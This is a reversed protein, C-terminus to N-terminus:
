PYNRRISLAEITRRCVTRAMDRRFGGDRSYRSRITESAGLEAEAALRPSPRAPVILDEAKRLRTPVRTSAGIIHSHRAPTARSACASLSISSRDINRPPVSSAPMIAPTSPRRRSRIDSVLEGPELATVFYDTAFEEIKLVRQGRASCLVVDANLALLCSPPDTAPDGYCLNGGITGQNRVQPNALRSAMDALMPAHQRVLPSRAVEAHLALAGIRLGEAPTYTIGRLERIGRLSIVHSPTVMRQRLALMLATGGAMVSSGPHALMMESAEAVTRPEPLRFGEHSPGTVDVGAPTGPRRGAQRAVRGPDKRRSRCLRSACASRTTSPTPSRPPAPFWRRKAPVKPATLAMRSTRDVIGSQIYPVSDATPMTYDAFNGNLLRGDEYRLHEYLTWGIGMVAAGCTQGHVALPNLAKRLRGVRLNRPCPGTRNGYRSRSRGGARCLFLGARCQRQEPTAMALFTPPDYTATVQLGEGGERFIHLRALDGFPIEQNPASIQCFGRWEGHRPRGEARRAKLHSRWCVNAYRAAPRSRPM